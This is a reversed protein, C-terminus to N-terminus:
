PREGGSIEDVRDLLMEWKGRDNPSLTDPDWHLWQKGCVCCSYHVHNKSERWMQIDLSFEGCPDCSEDHTWKLWNLDHDGCDNYVKINETPSVPILKGVPCPGDEDISRECVHCQESIEASM